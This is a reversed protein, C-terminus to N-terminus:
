DDDEESDDGDMSITVINGEWSYTFEYGNMVNTIADEVDEDWTNPLSDDFEDYNFSVDIFAYRQGTYNDTEFYGRSNYPLDYGLSDLADNIYSVIENLESYNM